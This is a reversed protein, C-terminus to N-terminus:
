LLDGRLMLVNRSRKFSMLSRLKGRRWLPVLLEKVKRGVGCWPVWELLDIEFSAEWAMM